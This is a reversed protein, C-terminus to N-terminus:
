NVNQVYEVKCVGGLAGGLAAGGWKLNLRTGPGFVIPDDVVGNGQGTTLANPTTSAFMTGQLGAGLVYSGFRTTTGNAGRGWEFALATGTAITVTGSAFRITSTAAFDVFCATTSSTGSEFQVTDSCHRMGDFSRCNESNDLSSVAGLKEALVKVGNVMTELASVRENVSDVDPQGFYAVVSVLVALAVGGVILKNSM